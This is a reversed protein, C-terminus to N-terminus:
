ISSWTTPLSANIQRWENTGKMGAMQRWPRREASKAPGRVVPQLVRWVTPVARVFHAGIRSGDKQTSQALLLM